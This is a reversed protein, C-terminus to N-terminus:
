TASKILFSLGEKAFSVFSIILRSHIREKPYAVCVQRTLKPSLPCKVLQGLKMEKVVSVVSMISYGMRAAILAKVAEPSGAEIVMQLVGPSVGSVQLYRDIVERTGSGAERSIYNYHALLEPAVSTREALPHSPTCVVQLEDECCIETILAAERSAGDIFGIDFVRDLVRAQVTGSNTVYLHPVVAPFRTKFEAITQPLLFDALTTSAGISLQAGLATGIGRMRTKLEASLAMTRETYELAVAGAPTLSIRGSKRDFLRANFEEELQRIQFTSGAADHVFGPSSEHVFSAKRGHSLRSYM